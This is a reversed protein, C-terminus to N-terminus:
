LILTYKDRYKKYKHYPISIGLRDNNDGSHKLLNETLNMLCCRLYYIYPYRNVIYKKKNNGTKPIYMNSIILDFHKESHICPKGVFNKMYMSLPKIALEHIRARAKNILSNCREFISSIVESYTEGYKCGFLRNMLHKSIASSKGTESLSKSVVCVITMLLFLYVNVIKVLVCQIKCMVDSWEIRRSLVRISLYSETTLVCKDIEGLIYEVIREFEIIDDGKIKTFHITFFINKTIIKRFTYRVRFSKNKNNMLTTMSDITSTSLNSGTKESDTSSVAPSNPTLNISQASNVSSNSSNLFYGTSDNLSEHELEDYTKQILRMYGKPYIRFWHLLDCYHSTKINCKQKLSPFKKYLENLINLPKNEIM